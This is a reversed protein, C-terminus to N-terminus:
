QAFKVTKKQNKKKERIAAIAAKDRERKAKKQEKKLRYAKEAPTEEPIKAPLDYFIRVIDLGSIVARLSLDESVVVISTLEEINDEGLEYLRTLIRAADLSDQREAKAELEEMNEEEEEKEDQNLNYANKKDDM